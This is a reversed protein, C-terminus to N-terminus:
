GERVELGGVRGWGVKCVVEARWILLGCVRRVCVHVWRAGKADVVRSM